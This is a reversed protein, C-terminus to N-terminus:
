KYRRYPQSKVLKPFSFGWFEYKVRGILFPRVYLPYPTHYPPHIIYHTLTTRTTCRIWPVSGSWADNQTLNGAATLQLTAEQGTLHESILMLVQRLFKRVEYGTLRTSKKLLALISKTMGVEVNQILFRANRTKKEDTDTQSM